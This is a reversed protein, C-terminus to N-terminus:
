LVRMTVTRTLNLDGPLMPWSVIPRFPHSVTVAVRKIGMGEDAIVPSPIVIEGHAFPPEPLEAEVATRIKAEWAARTIITVPHISAFDAGVRAANTVAIYSYAFRGFDVCGLVLTILLPLILAFEVAALGRRRCGRTPRGPKPNQM